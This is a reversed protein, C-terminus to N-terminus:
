RACEKEIATHSYGRKFLYAKKEGATWEECAYDFEDANRFGAIEIDMLKDLINHITQDAIILPAISKLPSTIPEVITEREAQRKTHWYENSVRLVNRLQIIAKDSEPQYAGTAMLDSVFHDLSKIAQTTTNYKHEAETTM